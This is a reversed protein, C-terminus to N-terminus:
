PSNIFPRAAAALVAFGAVLLFLMRITVRRAALVCCTWILLWGGGLGAFRQWVYEDFMQM